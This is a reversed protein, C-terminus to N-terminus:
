GDPDNYPGSRRRSALGAAASEKMNVKQIYGLATKVDHHGSYAMMDKLPVKARGAETMFGSRLSHPSFDGEQDLGSLQCRRAVIEWVGADSLREQSIHGGRRIRRFIAGEAIGAAALLRLWARLADAAAGVIPKHNEGRDVGQQNTKSFALNYIFDLGDKKLLALDAAAVESRRRGGSDFAFLLLARDRVGQPSADCTALLRELHDLELADKKKPLQGRKAYASRAARMLRRVDQHDTPSDLRRDRHLRALAALRHELTNLAMPGRKAKVGCAILAADVAAPLEHQMLKGDTTLRQAHDVIFQLVVSAHLPL